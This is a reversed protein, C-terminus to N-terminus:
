AVKLRPALQAEISEALRMWQPAPRFKCIIPGPAFIAFIWYRSLRRITYYKCPTHDGRLEPRGSGLYANCYDLPEDSLCGRRIASDRSVRIKAPM